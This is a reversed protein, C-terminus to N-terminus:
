SCYVIYAVFLSFSAIFLCYVFSRTIKGKNVQNNSDAFTNDYASTIVNFIVVIVLFLLVSIVSTKYDFASDINVKGKVGKPVVLEQLYGGGLILEPALTHSM